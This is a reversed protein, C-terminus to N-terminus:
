EEYEERVSIAIIGLVACVAFWVLSQKITICDQELATATLITGFIAGLFCIGQIITKM